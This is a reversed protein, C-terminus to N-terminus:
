QLTLVDDFDPKQSSFVMDRLAALINDADTKV